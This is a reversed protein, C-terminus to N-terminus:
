FVSEAVRRCQRACTTSHLIGFPRCMYISLLVGLNLKVHCVCTNCTLKVTAAFPPVQENATLLGAAQLRVELAATEFDDKGGLENFGVIYDETKEKRILALTPLM